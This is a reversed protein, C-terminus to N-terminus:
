IKVRYNAGKWDPTTDLVWERTEQIKGNNSNELMKWEHREIEHGQLFAHLAPSNRQLWDHQNSLILLEFALNQYKTAFEKAEELIAAAKEHSNM